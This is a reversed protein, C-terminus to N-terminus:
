VSPDSPDSHPLNASRATEIAGTLEEYRRFLADVRLRARWKLLRHALVSAASIGYVALMMPHTLQWDVSTAIILYSALTSLAARRRVRDPVPAAWKEAEAMEGLLWPALGGSAIDAEPGTTDM